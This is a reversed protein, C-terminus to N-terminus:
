PQQRRRTHAGAPQPARTCAGIGPSTADATPHLIWPVHSLWSWGPTADQVRLEAGKWVSKGARPTSEVPLRHLIGGPQPISCSSASANFIGPGGPQESGGSIRM